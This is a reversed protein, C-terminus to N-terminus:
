VNVYTCDQEPPPISRLLQRQRPYLIAEARKPLFCKCGLWAALVCGQVHVVYSINREDHVMRIGGFPPFRVLTAMTRQSMAGNDWAYNNVSARDKFLQYRNVMTRQSMAWNGWKAIKGFVNAVCDHQWFVAQPLASYIICIASM